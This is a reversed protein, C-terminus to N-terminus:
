GQIFRNHYYQAIKLSGSYYYIQGLFDYIKLQTETDKLKWAYQLAKKFLKISQEPMDIDLAIKAM